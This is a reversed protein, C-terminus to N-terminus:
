RPPSPQFSSLTTIREWLCLSVSCYGMGGGSVALTIYETGRAMRKRDEATHGEWTVAEAASKEKHKLTYIPSAFSCLYAEQVLAQLPSAIIHYAQFLGSFSGP